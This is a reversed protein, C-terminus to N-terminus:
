FPLSLQQQDPLKRNLFAEIKYSRLKRIDIGDWSSPWNEWKPHDELDAWLDLDSIDVDRYAGAAINSLWERAEFEPREVM